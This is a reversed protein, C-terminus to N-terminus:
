VNVVFFKEFELALFRGESDFDAAGITTHVSLPKSKSYTAVGSQGKSTTCVTFSFHPLSPFYKAFSLAVSEDSKL